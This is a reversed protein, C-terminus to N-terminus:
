GEEDAVKREVNERHWRQRHTYIHTSQSTRFRTFIYREEFDSFIVFHYQHLHRELHVAIVYIRLSRREREREREREIRVSV